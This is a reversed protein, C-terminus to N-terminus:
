KYTGTSYALSFFILQLCVSIKVAKIIAFFRSLATKKEARIRLLQKFARISNLATISKQEM